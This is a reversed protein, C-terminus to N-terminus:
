KQVSEEALDLGGELMKVRVYIGLAARGKEVQGDPQNFFIKFLNEKVRNSGTSRGPHGSKAEVLTHDAAAVSSLSCAAVQCFIKLWIHQEWSCSFRAPSHGPESLRGTYPWGLYQPTRCRRAIGIQPWILTFKIQTPILLVMNNGHLWM